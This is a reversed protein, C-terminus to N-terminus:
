AADEGRYLWELEAIGPSGVLLERIGEVLTAAEAFPPKDRGFMKRAHRRLSLLWEDRRGEVNCCHVAFEAGSGPLFEIFWGWDESNPYSTAIGRRALESCLWFALEAGYVEPNVQCHEPLLPSFLASKFRAIDKLSSM